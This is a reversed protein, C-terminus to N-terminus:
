RRCARRSSSSGSAGGLHGVGDALAFGTTRARTPFNDASRAYTAPVWLNFGLFAITRNSGDPDPAALPGHKAAAAEMDTVVRDADDLRGQGVLRRPSEPLEFRLAIAVLALLAGLGYM